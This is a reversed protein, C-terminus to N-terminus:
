EGARYHLLGGRKEAIARGEDELVDLHGIVESMGLFIDHKALNPFLAQCVQYPTKWGNALFDAIRQLRRGHMALREAVLGRHDAISPGHGGLTKSADLEALRRLSDLYEVLSRPRESEDRAPSELVPNSSIEALLLDGALILGAEPQHLVLHGSAHGPMHFVSWEAGGARIRDGDRLLRLREVPISAGLRIGPSMLERVAAVQDDPLGAQYLYTGYFTLRRVWEVEFDTLWHLNRHHSLVGADAEEVLWQLQGFHDLHSHTVIIQRIDGVGCGLGALHTLLAERAARIRPGTDVLTLPEGEILYVNVPGIPFPTPIAFTHIRDRMYRVQGPRAM